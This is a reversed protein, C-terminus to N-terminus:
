PAKPKEPETVGMGSGCRRRRTPAALRTAHTRLSALVTRPGLTTGDLFKTMLLSLPKALLSRKLLQRSMLLLRALNNRGRNTNPHEPGLAKEYIALARDYLPRAGAFDGQAQILNAFNNLSRATDPHEPGLAEELIPLARDYLPRAGAYNGQDRLLVALDNLSTATSPHEPGLAKEDIAL